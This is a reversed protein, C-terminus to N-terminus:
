KTINQLCVQVKSHMIAAAPDSHIAQYYKQEFANGLELPKLLKKCYIFTDTFKEKSVPEKSELMEDIGVILESIQRLWAFSPRDMVLGLLVQPSAIKGHQGEYRNKEYDLLVKHLKLLENRFQTWQEIKM